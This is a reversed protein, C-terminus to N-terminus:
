FTQGALKPSEGTEVGRESSYQSDFDPGWAEVTLERNVLGSLAKVPIEIIVMYTTTGDRIDWRITAQLLITWGGYARMRLTQDWDSATNPSMILMPLIDGLAPKSLAHGRGVESKDKRSWIQSQLHSRDVEQQEEWARWKSHHRRAM